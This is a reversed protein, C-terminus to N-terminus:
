AKIYYLDRLMDGAINEFKVLDDASIDQPWNHIKNKDMSKDYALMQESFPLEIFECIKMLVSEPDSILDEFRIELYHNTHLAQRKIESIQWIWNAALDEIKNETNGREVKHSVATDRGDRIIHIFKAEPLISAINIIQNEFPRVFEGIRKTGLEEAYLNCFARLGKSYDFSNLENIQTVFSSRSINLKSWLPHTMIIKFFIKKNKQKKKQLLKYNLNTFIESTVVLDPHSNLMLRLLSTGSNDAGVIIPIPPFDTIIRIDSKQKHLASSMRKIKMEIRNTFSKVRSPLPKHVFFHTKWPESKDNPIGHPDTIKKLESAEPLIIDNPQCQQRQVHWRKKIVEEESFVRGCFKATAHAKNLVIYHRLIFSEPYIKRNEFNIRHGGSGAIDIKQGFNKWVKIQRFTMPEYYYYYRMTEIYDKGEHDPEEKTPIFVFEDFNIANYGIKDVEIIADKLTAFRKPAQRIEDADYHIFWDADIEYSLNEKMKLLPELEFVGNFPYHEIRFVNKDRFSEAIELTKDTSDNDIVCVEIGENYLFELCRKLYREENRVTLLAVIRM